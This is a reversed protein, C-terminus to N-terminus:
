FPSQARLRHMNNKNIDSSALKKKFKKHYDPTEVSLYLLPFLNLLISTPFLRLIHGLVSSHDSFNSPTLSILCSHHLSSIKLRICVKIQTFLSLTNSKGYPSSKDKVILTIFVSMRSIHWFQFKYFKSYESSRTNLKLCLHPYICM